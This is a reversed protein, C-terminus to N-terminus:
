KAQNPAAPAPTQNEAPPTAPPTASAAQPPQAAEPPGAGAPPDFVEEYPSDPEYDDGVDFDDAEEFTEHGDEAARRSLETAVMTRIRETLSPQKVYGIPPAMPVPSPKERGLPDLYIESLKREFVENINTVPVAPM